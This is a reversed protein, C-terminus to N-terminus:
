GILENFDVGTKTAIFSLVINQISRSPKIYIECRFEGADIVEPTNVREDVVVAYDYVGRRGKVDRLFPEVMQYFRNRTFTDNFEFLSYKSATAIAKELVIFLRRVNIFGFASPKVIFTRDGYLLTGDSKTTMVPNIGNKYLEDRQAKSPQYALKEVNKIQGRNYGAPSWWPDNTNDTRACLGAIDGNLPIWRYVDNYKDYQYKYNGDMVGYTSAIAPKNTVITTAPAANKADAEQPSIFAMCDKRVDAINQIIWAGMTANAAGTVILNIDVEEPNDLEGWSLQLDGAAPAGDIGSVCPLTHGAHAASMTIVQSWIDPISDQGPTTLDSLLNDALLNSTVVYIYNSNSNIVRDAYNSNGLHDLASVVTNVTYNEVVIDKYTVVVWIDGATDPAYDFNSNYNWNDFATAEAIMDEYSLLYVDIDNGYLGPYKAYIAGSLSASDKKAEFDDDNLVIEATGLAAGLSDCAGNKATTQDVSRVVRMDKGYALFNAASFWDKSNANNPLGFVEVLKDESSIIRRENVPGWEFDGVIAGISTAVAPVSTTLDIEQVIVSPSLSFPM